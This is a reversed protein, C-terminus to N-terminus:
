LRRGEQTAALSESRQVHVHVLEPVGERDFHHQESRKGFVRSRLRPNWPTTGTQFQSANSRATPAGPVKEDRVALIASSNEAFPADLSRVHKSNWDIQPSRFM